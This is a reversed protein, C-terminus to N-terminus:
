SNEKLWAQFMLISWLHYKWDRVGSLHEDWKQRVLAENLFGQERLQEPALLDEAWDRLPGRIWSDIPVAFGMKPREILHKPVYKDLIQRLIYKGQGNQVKMSIPLRWAFEVVRHDLLPIRSELSAGMSARDVKVLIDDPLYTITDSYMMQSMLDESKLINKTNLLGIAPESSNLVLSETDQSYSMIHAYMEIFSAVKLVEALKHLQDGPSYDKLRSPLVMAFPTLLNDWSQPSLNTLSNALAYRLETPIWGFKQWIKSSLFYSDYGGFLEDGADGSLSVVVNQRTLKSLLFTPIESPDSFPEDYLRPLQPIVDLAQQPTVYLETHETGLHKAIEKAYIAENFEAEEFGITFTKVPQNSQAQMLSVIISSDIGGSLFGGLPVDAVMTLAVADKLLQELQNIAEETTGTFPNAMGSKAVEEISWYQHPQPRNTTGDWTLFTGPPLKYIDKYISYPAPIYRHRFYSALVNRDLEKKFHPHVKFAKLESAFLLTSDQWGYYLPKQGLRDRGFHLLHEQRDWLAFAFMGNFIQLSRELGWQVISALMVETDSHGRFKHGLSILQQRLELFNYIEGNLVIVYRGDRSKMPQHGEPSLDIISLRRHGLGLGREEDIWQGFDDPGRHFLSKSMEKVIAQIRGSEFDGSTNWFGTIGCM